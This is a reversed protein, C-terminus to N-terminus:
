ETTGPENDTLWSVFALLTTDDETVGLEEALCSTLGDVVAADAPWGASLDDDCPAWAANLAAV